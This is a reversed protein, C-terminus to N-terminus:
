GKTPNLQVTYTRTTTGDAAVVQVVVQRGSRTTTVTADEDTPVAVVPTAASPVPVTYSTTGPAFGAVPTNGVRLAALTAIDAPQGVVENIAVESIKTYFDLSLVLRIATTTVPAFAVHTTTDVALGSTAAASADAWSGTADKYQVTVTLPARETPTIDVSSVVHPAGLSYTLTDSALGSSRWDSWYNSTSVVGDCTRSAAYSGETYGATVSVTTKAGCLDSSGGPPVVIVSLMAPVSAGGPANSAVTGLVTIVGKAQFASDTVGSWDWTAPASFTADSVDGIRAEVTSPAQAEVAARSTGATVTLSAPDSATYSGVVVTASVTLVNGFVDTATGSVSTSGAKKWGNGPLQWIVPVAAGEGWAYTPTVTAPMTPATGLPTAVVPRVAGTAVTSDLSWAQNTGGNSGYVGVGSGSTTSQGNVDLALALAKNVLSYTSGDTTQLVWLASPDAAADAVTEARVATGASTAALVGGSPTTLVYQKTAPTAADDVKHFTWEQTRAAAATTAPTTITTAAGSSAGSADTLALGSQAGRLWYTGGDTVGLNASTGTVGNVVITTVSQAPVTLTVSKSAADVAVPNQAVVGTATIDAISGDSGAAPATTQYATATADAAISGFKSLDVTVTQATSGTNAHVLTASTGDKGLAATSSSDTTPILRDGPHIFNTYNRMVNFKSNLKIGCEPVGQTSGGNAAVRRASLFAVPDGNSATSTSGLAKDTATDYYQCDFDVYVEGWNLGETVQMNYYNEVPQWLVWASPKLGNLDGNIQGAFGLSNTMSSPNFGSAWSGEVESMWLPKDASAANDRVQLRASTGYAHTNMQSVAAQTAAPFSNWDTVFLSTNTEDMASVKSDSGARQLAQRLADIVAAQQTTGVHMGEQGGAKPAGNVLTTGWYNTNPENLPEITRFKVGYQQELHQTVTTLYEVFKQQASTSLQQATSNFGGSVYGSETMFWPASNAFAELGTLDPDQALKSLWWRQAADQSWDYYADDTPDFKALIQAKNALTTSAGGYLDSAGAADAKWFGPVAGGARLYDPVDSANGGGINYRAISLDMGDPGFLLGYLQNKLAEPYGGTANAFWALSTGWGQFPGSADWPDPTITLSNASAPATTETLTSADAAASAPVVGAIALAAVSCGAAWGLMRRM